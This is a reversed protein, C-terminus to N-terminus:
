CRDFISGRGGGGGERGTYLEWMRRTSDHIMTVPDDDRNGDCRGVRRLDEFCREATLKDYVAVRVMADIFERRTPQPAPPPAPPYQPQPYSPPAQPAQPYPLTSYPPSNPQPYPQPVQPWPQQQLHQAQTYPQYPPPQPVVYSAAHSQQQPYPQQPYPQPQPYPQQSYPQPPYQPPYQPQPQPPQQPPPKSIRSCSSSSSSTSQVSKSLVNSLRKRITAVLEQNMLGKAPFLGGDWGFGLAKGVRGKAQRHEKWLRWLFRGRIVLLREGRHDKERSRVVWGKRIYEEIREDARAKDKYVPCHRACYDRLDHATVSHNHYKPTLFSLFGM